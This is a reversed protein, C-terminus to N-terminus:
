SGTWKAYVYEGRIGRRAEYKRGLDSKMTLIHEETGVGQIIPM